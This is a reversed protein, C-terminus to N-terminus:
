PVAPSRHRMLTSGFCIYKGAILTQFSHSLLAVSSLFSSFDPIPKALFGSMLEAEDFVQV